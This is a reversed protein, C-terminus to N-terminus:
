YLIITVTYFIVQYDPNDIMPPKWQGKYNPNDILPTEWEGCGPATECKPNPVLPAEWEGDMDDNRGVGFTINYYWVHYIYISYM